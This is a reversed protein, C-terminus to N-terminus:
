RPRRRGRAGKRCRRRADRPGRSLLSQPQHRRLRSPCVQAHDGQYFEDWGPLHHVLVVSPFPGDGLPRALYANITDGDHGRMSITEALMGEYMNTEYM